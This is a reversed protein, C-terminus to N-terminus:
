LNLSGTHPEARENCQEKKGKGRLELSTEFFEM